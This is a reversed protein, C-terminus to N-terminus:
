DIVEVMRNAIHMPLLLFQSCYGVVCFTSQAWGLHLANETEVFERSFYYSDVMLDRLHLNKRKDISEDAEYQFRCVGIVIV